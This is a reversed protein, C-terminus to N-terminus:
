MMETSYGGGAGMDLVTMGIRVGTFPFLKTPDRRKDITRDGESRDPAAVIAAYDPVGQALAGLGSALTLGLAFLAAKAIMRPSSRQNTEKNGQAERSAQAPGRSFGFASRRMRRR